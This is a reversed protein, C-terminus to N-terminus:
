FPAGDMDGELDEDREYEVHPQNGGNPSVAPLSYRPKNKSQTAAAMRKQKVAYATM